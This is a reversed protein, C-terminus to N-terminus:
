TAAEAAPPAQFDESSPSLNLQRRLDDVSMQRIRGAFALEHLLHFHRSAADYDAIAGLTARRVFEMIFERRERERRSGRWRDPTIRRLAAVLRASWDATRLDFRLRQEKFTAEFRTLYRLDVVDGRARKVNLRQRTRRRQEPSCVMSAIYAPDRILMVEALPLIAHRTVDRAKDGRDAHYLQMVLDAYREAYDFGGWLIARSLAVVFLRRAKRGADTEALGPMAKLSRDVLSRFRSARIRRGWGSRALSLEIRRAIREVGEEREDKERAFLDPSLGLRRGFEFADVIGGCGQHEIRKLAENMADYTVPVLGLQYAAGVLAVDAVRESGFSRRCVRCFDGLLRVENTCTALWQELQQRVQHSEDSETEDQHHGINVVAATRATDAVRLTPDPGISRFTELVDLGLLLDAEGYPVTASLDFMGAGRQAHTFLIEAWARRGAGIPAPGYISQVTYGMSRGAECLVSAAIGPPRSRFGALHVRWQPQNGHQPKPLPLKSPAMMRWIRAPPRTRVVEIQEFLPRFRVPPGSRGRRTQQDVTISTELARPERVDLRDETLDPAAYQLACAFDVPRVIRQTPQYGLRDIEQMALEIAAVDYRPPPGDRVILVTLGDSLVAEHLREDLTNLDDLNGTEIRVRSARDAPVASRALREFDQGDHQASECVIFVWPRDDNAAQILASVGEFQFRRHGWTEVHVIRPAAAAPRRGDVALSTAALNRESLPAEDVLWREARALMHGIVSLAADSGIAASRPPLKVSVAPPDPLLISRIASGGRLTQLLHTIRRVLVSPHLDDDSTMTSSEGHEDPPLQSGWVQAPSEGRRRLVEAVRLVSLEITGPRPELVVVRECRTLVRAVAAEDLPHVLGLQLVPIRGQMKFVHAIHQLAQDAPGVAIFGIPVREGPSPMARFRNVELRRAMRLVGGAEGWRPKPPKRRPPLVVDTPAPVRNPQVEITGASRMISTHVVLAIPRQGARSLRLADDVCEGLGGVDAAELCDIGLRISARRACSAPAIEPHDELLLCVAGEGEFPDGITQMLAAITQDLQRNPVLAIAKEGSQAAYLSLRIARGADHTGLVRTEHRQLVELGASSSAFDFIGLFPEHRPGAVLAIPAECELVGKLIVEPASLFRLGEHASLAAFRSPSSRNPV